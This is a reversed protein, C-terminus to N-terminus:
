CISQVFNRLQQLVCISWNGVLGVSELVGPIESITHRTVKAAVGVTRRDYARVYCM